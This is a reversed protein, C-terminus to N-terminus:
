STAVGTSIITVARRNASYCREEACLEAPREKGYPVTRLRTGPVGQSVLFERVANARRASLALNYETTGQEDAHGEIVAQYDSNTLLWQAQGSLTARGVDTLTSQDVEFLVRDGVTQQFYAPTTPDSAPDLTTAGIGGNANLDVANDAASDFRSADSCASVIAVTCLAVVTRAVRPFTLPNM